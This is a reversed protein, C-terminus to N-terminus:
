SFAQAERWAALAAEYGPMGPKLDYVTQLLEQFRKEDAIKTLRSMAAIAVRERKLVSGRPTRPKSDDFLRTVTGKGRRGQSGM